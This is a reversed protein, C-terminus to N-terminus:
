QQHKNNIFYYIFFIIYDYKFLVIRKGCCVMFTKWM